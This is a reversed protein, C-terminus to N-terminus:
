MSFWTYHAKFTSLAVPQIISTKDPPLYVVEIGKSDFEHPEPYGPVNDLM